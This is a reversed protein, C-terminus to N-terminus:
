VGRTKSFILAPIGSDERGCNDVAGSNKYEHKEYFRIARTNKEEVELFFHKADFFSDEIEKLLLEGVGQGHFEPLVYLQHLKVLGPEEERGYAMGVIKDGNDAVLCECNLMRVQMALASPNHWEATIQKVREAGYIDDYTAHWTKGLLASIADIDKSGFTRVWM